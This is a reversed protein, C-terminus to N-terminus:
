YSNYGGGLKDLYGTSFAYGLILISPLLFAALVGIILQMRLKQNYRASTKHGQFDDPLILFILFLIGPDSSTHHASSLM